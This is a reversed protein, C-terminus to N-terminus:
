LLEIEAGIGELREVFNEYGREIHKESDNIISEGQSSLAAIVVAAGARLDRTNVNTGTFISHKQGFIKVARPNDDKEPYDPHTYYKFKAGFKKLDKWYQLRNPYKKEIIKSEGPIQMLVPAFQPQWDTSFEPYTYAAIKTPKLNWNHQKIIYYDNTYEFPARIENLFNELPELYAESRNINNLKLRSNTSIALAVWTALDNRDLMNTYDTSEINIPGHIKLTDETVDIKAGAKKLFNLIDKFEPVKIYNSITSTENKFLAAYLLLMSNTFWQGPIQRNFPKKNIETFIIENDTIETKIGAIKLCDYVYEMSRGIQDGGLEQNTKPKEIRWEGFRSVLIPIFLTAGSTYFFTESSIPIPKTINKSNIKITHKDLYVIEAGQIKAIKCINDISGIEPANKLTFEGEGMLPILLHKMACNKSGQIQVEGKLKAEGKLRLKM